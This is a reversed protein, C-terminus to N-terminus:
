RRKRAEPSSELYAIVEDVPVVDAYKQDLDFLSLAHPAEHRDFIAEEALLVRFRNTRADVATARVCGSTTEGVIVVTDAREDRTLRSADPAVDTDTWLSQTKEDGVNMGDTVAM